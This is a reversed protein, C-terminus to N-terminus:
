TRRQLKSLLIDIKRKKKKKYASELIEYRGLIRYSVNVADNADPYIWGKTTEWRENIVKNGNENSNEALWNPM